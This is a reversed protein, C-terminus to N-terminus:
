LESRLDDVLIRLREITAESREPDRWSMDFNLSNAGARIQERVARAFETTGVSRAPAAIRVAITMQGPDREVLSCQEGLRDVVEAVHEPPITGQSSAGFWGDGYRAARRIAPASDGGVLIPFRRQRPTPYTRLGHPVTYPGYEGPNPTGSWVERLLALQADLIKGRSAFEVGLADFEERLWGAGAGLTIRGGALQDLTALQKGLIVPQRHPVVAVSVGLGVRSTVGALYSLTVVWDFWPEDAPTFFEGTTSFPYSSAAGEVLATHDPVWLDDAGAQEATRAMDALSWHESTGDRHPLHLGFRIM